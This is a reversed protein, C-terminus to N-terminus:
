NDWNSEIHKIKWKGNEKELYLSNGYGDNKAYHDFEIYAKTKDKSFIPYSFQISKETIKTKENSEITEFDKTIIKPITFNQNSNNQNIIDISDKIKFFVNSIPKSKYIKELCVEGQNTFSKKPLKIIVIKNSAKVTEFCKANIILKKLNICIPVNQNTPYDRVMEVGKQELLSQIISLTENKYAADQSKKDSCSLALIIILLFLLRNM